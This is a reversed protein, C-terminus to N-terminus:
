WTEPRANRGAEGSKMGNQFRTLFLLLTKFLASQSYATSVFVLLFTIFFRNTPL